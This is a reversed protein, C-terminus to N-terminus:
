WTFSYPSVKRLVCNCGLIWSIRRQFIKWYFKGYIKRKFKLPLLIMQILQSQFRCRCTWILKLELLFWTLTIKFYFMGWNMNIWNRKNGSFWIFWNFGEIKLSCNLNWLLLFIVKARALRFITVSSILFRFCVPFYFFQNNTFDVKSTAKFQQRSIKFNSKPSTFKNDWLKPQM